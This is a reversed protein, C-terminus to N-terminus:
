IMKRLVIHNESNSKRYNDINLGFKKYFSIARMNEKHTELELNEMRAKKAELVFKEMLERGVGLNRCSEDVGLISVYAIKNTLNNIYGGIIGIIKEDKLATIIIGNAIIKSIYEKLDVYDSLTEGFDRDIKKLFETVKEKENEDANKYEVM